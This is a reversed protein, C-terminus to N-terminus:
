KIVTTPDGILQWTMRADVSSTSRKAARTLDGIRYKGGFINEIVTEGMTIQNSSYTSGTSSWVAASGNEAKFLREALSDSSANHFLGNLCSLAMAFSLRNNTLTGPDNQNFINYGGWIGSSGHGTYTVVMANENMNEFIRDRLEGDSLQSRDLTISEVERGALLALRANTEEYGDDAILLNVRKLRAGQRDYRELKEVMNVAEEYTAAPLRGTAIDEIGDGDFDVFWSDSATEMTESDFLRTPIIDRMGQGLYDRMDYSADGFLIAYEPALKWSKLADRFFGRIALDSKRGFSYEDYIDEVSVVITAFGQESRIEALQSAPKMFRSPAVIVLDAMNDSSRLDSHTDREIRLVAPGASREYAVFERSIGFARISFGFSGGESKVNVLAKGIARGDNDLEYVDLDSSDFGTIFASQGAKVAFRLAGEDAIFKKSYRISIEDVLSVDEPGGSARLEVSNIEGSLSSMPLMFEFERNEQGFYDVTGLVEGNFKINVLHQQSSLGQLKVRLRAERASNLDPNATRIELVADQSSLVPAGFWNEKEANLISSAYITRDKRVTTVRFSGSKSQGEASKEGYTALRQGRTEGSVLYFVQEDAFKSEFGNAIFEIGPTLGGSTGVAIPVERGGEFMRWNDPNTNVDFGSAALESITVRYRGSDRVFIKVGAGSVAPNNGNTDEALSHVPGQDSLYERKRFRNVNGMGTLLVSEARPARYSFDMKPRIPGHLTRTGDLDIDELYYSADQSPDRDSWSYENGTVKMNVATRLASGAIPSETLLSSGGGNSRYVNFGLNDTEGGTNWELFVRDGKYYAEFRDLKVQLPALMIGFDVTPDSTHGAAMNVVNNGQAGTYGPTLTVMGSILDGPYSGTNDPFGNDNFDFNLNPNSETPDSSSGGSPEIVVRYDGAALCEFRYNGSADTTVGGNADDATGLIGDPGVPVETGTSDYLKVVIGSLLTEGSDLIGNNTEAGPGRDDWVTGSLSLGFFGFDVTMDAFQDLSGQGAYPGSTPVDPESTPESAPALNISNSLLGDTLVDPASTPSVGNEANSSAGSSDADATNTGTTNRYGELIASPGFNSPDIRVVYNNAQLSDFRYYGNADTTITQLPSGPTDPVGNSDSDLLVSVSVGSIGSEGPDIIGDDDTDFWVRNGISYIPAGGGG